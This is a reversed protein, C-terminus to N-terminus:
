GVRQRTSNGRAEHVSPLDFVGRCSNFPITPALVPRFPSCRQRTQVWYPINRFKKAAYYGSPRPRETLQCTFYPVFVSFTCVLVASGESRSSAVLFGSRKRYGNKPVHPLCAPPYWAEAPHVTDTIAEVAVCCLYRLRLTWICFGFASDLAARGFCRGFRVGLSASRAVNKPKSDILALPALWLSDCEVAALGDARFGHLTRCRFRTPAIWHEAPQLPGM